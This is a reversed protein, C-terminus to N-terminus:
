APWARRQRRAPATARLRKWVLSRAVSTPAPLILEDVLGGRVVAEWAGLLAVVLLAAPM